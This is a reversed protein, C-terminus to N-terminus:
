RASVNGGEGSLMRKVAARNRRAERSPGVKPPLKGLAAWRRITAPSKGYAQAIEADSITDDLLDSTQM